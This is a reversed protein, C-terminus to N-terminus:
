KGGWVDEVNVDVIWLLESIGDTDESEEDRFVHEENESKDIVLYKYGKNIGTIEYNLVGDYDNEIDKIYEKVTKEAIKIADIISMDSRVLINSVTYDNLDLIVTSSSKGLVDIKKM